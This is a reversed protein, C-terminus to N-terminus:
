SIINVKDFAHKNVEKREKDFMWGWKNFYRFASKISIILLKNSIRHEAKHAHIITVQPYFVTKSVKHIRRMLDFDEFYIFFSEDFIGIEKLISTRLVMFCGSLQPINMTIKYGTKEMMYLSNRKKIWSKPLLRRGFIDLPTPYLHCLKQLSGDPYIVNPMLMGVDRHSDMFILLHEISKKEFQIDPNLIIHYISGKTLSERIAINHGSGYGINGQGFIYIIKKSEFYDVISKLDNSPSNDVVYVYDINSDIACSLITSFEEKKTKFLVISATIM